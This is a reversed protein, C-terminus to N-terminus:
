RSRASRDRRVAPLAPALGAAAQARPLVITVTTGGRTGGAIAVHGGHQEAFGFVNPLRLASTPIAKSPAFMPEFHPVREEPLMGIGTDSVSIRVFERPAGHKDATRVNRATITLIGGGPMADSANMCLSEVALAMEDPDADVPWLQEEFFLRVDVRAGLTGDFVLQMSTLETVPDLTPMARSRNHGIAGRRVIVARAM